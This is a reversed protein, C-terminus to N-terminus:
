RWLGVHRLIDEHFRAIEETKTHKLDVFRLERWANSRPLTRRAGLYVFELDWHKLPGYVESFVQPGEVRQKRLGLQEKLIRTAASRPDEGLLLHSSPLMWRKSHRKIREKDLAGIHDWQANENIHGMPVMRPNNPKSLIIFTSLCLGGNPIKNLRPPRVGKQLAVFKRNTTM